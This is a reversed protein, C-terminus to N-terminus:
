LNSDQRAWWENEITQPSEKSAEIEWKPPNKPYGDSFANTATTMSEVAERKKEMRIHSYRELMARSLHGVIAMITSDSAGSEALKTIATHRLDHLRCNVGASERITTWPQKYSAAPKTPDTPWRAGGPFVYHEPATGGFRKTFWRAHKTLLAFLEGNM